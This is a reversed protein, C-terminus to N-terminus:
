TWGTFARVQTASVFRTTLGTGGVDITAGNVFSSGM